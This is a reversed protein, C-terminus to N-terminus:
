KRSQNKWVFSGFRKGSPSDGVNRISSRIGIVQFDEPLQERKYLSFLAPFLKRKALDGTAGFIVLSFSGVSRNSTM